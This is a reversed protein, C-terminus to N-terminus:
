NTNCLIHLVEGTGTFNFFRLNQKIHILVVLYNNSHQKAFYFGVLELNKANVLRPAFLVVLQFQM